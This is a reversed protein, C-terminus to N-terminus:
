ASASSESPGSASGTLSEAEEELKKKIRAEIENKETQGQTAASMFAALAGIAVDTDSPFVEEFQEITIEPAKGKDDYLCQYVLRPVAGFDFQQLIQQINATGFEAAIRRRAGLTFRLLRVVGDPGTYQVPNVAGM